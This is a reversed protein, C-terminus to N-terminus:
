GESRLVRKGEMMGTFSSRAGKFDLPYQETGLKVEQSCRVINDVGDKLFFQPTTIKLNPPM